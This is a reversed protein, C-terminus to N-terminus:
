PNDPGDDAQEMKDAWAAIMNAQGLTVSPEIGKIAPNVDAMSTYPKTRIFWSGVPWPRTIVSEDFANARYKNGIIALAHPEVDKASVDGRQTFLLSAGSEDRVVYDWGHGRQVAEAELGDGRVPIQRVTKTGEQLEALGPAAVRTTLVMSPVIGLDALEQGIGKPADLLWAQGKHAVVAAGSKLTQVEM